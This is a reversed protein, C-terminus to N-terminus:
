SYRMIGFQIARLVSEALEIPDEPNEVQGLIDFWEGEGDGMELFRMATEPKWLWQLADLTDLMEYSRQVFFSGITNSTLQLKIKGSELTWRVLQLCYLMEPDSEAGVKKLAKRCAQNVPSQNEKLLEPM